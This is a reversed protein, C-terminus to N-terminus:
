MYLKWCIKMLPEMCPMITAHEGGFGAIRTRTHAIGFFAFIKKLLYPPTFPWTGLQMIIEM